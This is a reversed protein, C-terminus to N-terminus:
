KEKDLPIIMTFTSGRSYISEVKIEGNFVSNVIKKTLYLGLGTGLITETLPSNIRSFSNFLKPLDEKKIGIGTDQVSIELVAAKKVAKLEISGKVTYKVANSMLNLVCQLLRKKDSVIRLDRPVDTKISLKKDEADRSVTTVAEKLVDDLEIEELYVELREAEIKSIDIVDNILSLLHKSSNFVIQLDKKAEDDVKGSIGQLILGTFGIISNLPTRLEHSMSAIFMSKMRDLEQLKINAEALKDEANKRNTVNEIVLITGNLILRGKIAMFQKNIRISPLDFPKRGREIYTEVAKTLLPMDKIFELINRGIVKNVSMNKGLNEIALANTMVIEGELDFALIGYPANAMISVLFEKVGYLAKEQERELVGM